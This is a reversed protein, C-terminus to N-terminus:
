GIVILCCKRGQKVVVECGSRFISSMKEVDKQRRKREKMYEHAMFGSSYKKM